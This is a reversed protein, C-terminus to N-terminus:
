NNKLINIKKEIESKNMELCGILTLLNKDFDNIPKKYDSGIYEELGHPCLVNIIKLINTAYDEITRINEIKEKETLKM